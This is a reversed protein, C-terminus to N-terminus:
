PSRLVDYRYKEPIKQVMNGPHDLFEPFDIKIFIQQSNYALSRFFACFDPKKGSDPNKDMM